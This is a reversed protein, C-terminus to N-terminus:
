GLAGYQQDYIVRVSRDVPYSGAAAAIPIAARAQLLGIWKHRM